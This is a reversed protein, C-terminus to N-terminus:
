PLRGVGRIAAHGMHSASRATSIAADGVGVLLVKVSGDEIVVVLDPLRTGGVEIM